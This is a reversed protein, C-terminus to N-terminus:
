YNYGLSILHLNIGHNPEALDANSFHLFRYGLEYRDQEGFNKGFGFLDGFLLKSGLERSSFKDNSLYHAGIGADFFYRSVGSRLRFVPKFGVDWVNPHGSDNSQTYGLSAEWYGTAIWKDGISWRKDWNWRANIRTGIASEVGYGVDVGAGSMAHSASTATLGFLIAIPAFLAAKTM